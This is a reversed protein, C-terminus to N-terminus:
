PCMASGASAEPSEPQLGCRVQEEADLHAEPEDPLCRSRSWGSRENSGGERLLASGAPRRAVVMSLDHKGASLLMQWSHGHSGSVHSFTPEPRNPNTLTSDLAVFTQGSVQRVPQPRM